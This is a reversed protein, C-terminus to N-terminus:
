VYLNYRGPLRARAGSGKGAGRLAPGSTGGQPLLRAGQHARGGDPEVAERGSAGHSANQIFRTTSGSRLGRRFSM